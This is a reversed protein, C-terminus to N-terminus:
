ENNAYNFRVKNFWPHTLVEDLTIREEPDKILLRNVLDKGADTITEWQPEELYIPDECTMKVLEKRDESDFPLSSSILAYMICGVSWLDCNSTYPSNLLIEPAVYGLTGFPETARENPGIMKSLGFDVLKPVAQSSIDTMMINDLKLDRHVIGYSNLYQLGLLIQYILECVRNEGLDFNYAEIYAYLDKGAMYDLIIYFYESSEFLDVLNIINPHQSM